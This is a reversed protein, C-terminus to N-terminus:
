HHHGAEQKVDFYSKYAVLRKLLDNNDKLIKAKEKEGAGLIIYSHPGPEGLIAPGGEKPEGGIDANTIYPAYFM